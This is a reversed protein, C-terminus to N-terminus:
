RGHRAERVLRELQSLREPARLGADEPLKIGRPRARAIIPDVGDDVVRFVGQWMGQPHFRGQADRVLFTVLRAGVPLVAAGDVRQAFEGVQGGLTLVRVSSAAPAEGAWVEDVRLEVSTFIRGNEWFTEETLPAGVVVLDADRALEDVPAIRTATAWALTSVLTLCAAAALSRM